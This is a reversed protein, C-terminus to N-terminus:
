VMQRRQLYHGFNIAASRGFLPTLANDYCQSLKKVRGKIKRGLTKEEEESYCIIEQTKRATKADIRKVLNSKM